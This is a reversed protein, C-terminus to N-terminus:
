TPREPIYESFTLWMFTAAYLVTLVLDRTLYTRDISAQLNALDQIDFFSSVFFFVLFATLYQFATWSKLRKRQAVGFLSVVVGAFGLLVGNVEILSQLIPEANKDPISSPLSFLVLISLAFGFLVLAVPFWASLGM